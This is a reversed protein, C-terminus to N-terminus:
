SGFKWLIGLNRGPFGGAPRLRDRGDDLVRNTWWDQSIAQPCMVSAWRRWGRRIFGIDINRVDVALFARKLDNLKHGLVPQIPVAVKGVVM